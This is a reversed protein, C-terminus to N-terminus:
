SKSKKSRSLDFKIFSTGRFHDSQKFGTDLQRQPNHLGCLEGYENCTRQTVFTTIKLFIDKSLIFELFTPLYIPLYTCELKFMRLHFQLQNIAIDTRADSKGLPVLCPHVLNIAFVCLLIRPLFSYLIKNLQYLAVLSTLNCHYNCLLRLKM